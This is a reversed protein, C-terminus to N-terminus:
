FTTLQESQKRLIQLSYQSKFLQKKTIYHLTIHNNQIQFLLREAPSCNEIYKFIRKLISWNTEYIYMYKGTDRM